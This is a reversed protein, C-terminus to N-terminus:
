CGDTLGAGLVRGVALVSGGVLLGDGLIAGLAEGLLLGMGLM